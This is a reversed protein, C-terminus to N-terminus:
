DCTAPGGEAVVSKVEIVTAPPLTAALSSHSTPGKGRTYPRKDPSRGSVFLVALSKSPSSKTSRPDSYLTVKPNCRNKENIAPALVVNVVVVLKPNPAGLPMLVCGAMVSGLRGPVYTSSPGSNKMSALAVITSISPPLKLPPVNDTAMVFLELAPSRM